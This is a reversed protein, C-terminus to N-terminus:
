RCPVTALQHKVCWLSAGVCVAVIVDPLSNRRVSKQESKRWSLPLFVPVHKDCFQVDHKRCPLMAVSIAQCTFTYTHITSRMYGIVIAEIVAILSRLTNFPISEVCCAGEEEAKEGQEEKRAGSASCLCYMLSRFYIVLCAVCPAGSPSSDQCLSKPPLTSGQQTSPKQAADM